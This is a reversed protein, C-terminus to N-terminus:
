SKYASNFTDSTVHVSLASIHRELEEPQITLSKFFFKVREVSGRQMVHAFDIDCLDAWSRQQLLTNWQSKPHTFVTM